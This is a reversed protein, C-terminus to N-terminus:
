RLSSDVVATALPRRIVKPIASGAATDVVKAVLVAVGAAMVAALAAAVKGAKKPLVHIVKRIVMGAVRKARSPVHLVVIMMTTKALHTAEAHDAVAITGVKRRLALVVKRIEPGVAVQVVAIIIM